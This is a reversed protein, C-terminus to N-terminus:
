HFNKRAVSAPFGIIVEEKDVGGHKRSEPCGFSVSVNQNAYCNAFVNGCISL